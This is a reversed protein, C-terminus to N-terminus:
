HPVVSNQFTLSKGSDKHRLNLRVSPRHCRSLIDRCIGDFPRLQFELQFSVPLYLDCSNNVM